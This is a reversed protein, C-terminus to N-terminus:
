QDTHSPVKLICQNWTRNRFMMNQHVHVGLPSQMIMLVISIFNHKNRGAFLKLWCGQQPYGGGFLVQRLNHQVNSVNIGYCYGEIPLSAEKSITKRMIEGMSHPWLDEYLWVHIQPHLGGEPNNSLLLCNTCGFSQFHRYPQSLEDGSCFSIRRINRASLSM